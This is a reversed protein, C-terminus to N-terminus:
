KKALLSKHYSLTKETADAAEDDPVIVTPGGAVRMPSMNRRSIEDNSLIQGTKVDILTFDKM